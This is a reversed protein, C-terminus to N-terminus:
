IHIEITEQAIERFKSLIEKVMDMEGQPIKNHIGEFIPRVEKEAKTLIERGFETISIVNAQRKNKTIKNREIYGDKELGDLIRGTNARDKLIIKALDRQHIQGNYSKIISLAAIEDLTVPLDLKMEVQRGLMKFCRDTLSIHYYLSETFDKINTETQEEMTKKKNKRNFYKNLKIHQMQLM